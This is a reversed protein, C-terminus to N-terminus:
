KTGPTTESKKGRVYTPQGKAASPRPGQYCGETCFDPM